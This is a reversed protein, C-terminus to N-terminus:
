MVRREPEYRSQFISTPPATGYGYSIINAAVENACVELDAAIHGPIGLERASAVLWASMTRLQGYQAPMELTRAQAARADM